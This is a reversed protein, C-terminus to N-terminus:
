KKKEIYKYLAKKQQTKKIQEMAELFAEMVAESDGGAKEHLKEFSGDGLVCNVTKKSLEIVGLAKEIIKEELNEKNKLFDESADDQFKEALEKYDNNLQKLATKELSLEAYISAYEEQKKDSTLFKFEIGGIRLPIFGSGLAIEIPKNVNKSM